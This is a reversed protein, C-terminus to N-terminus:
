LSNRSFNGQLARNTRVPSANAAAIPRTSDPTLGAEVVETLGNQIQQLEKMIRIAAPHKPDVKDALKGFAGLTASSSAKITEALMGKQASIGANRKLAFKLRIGFDNSM